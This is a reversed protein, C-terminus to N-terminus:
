GIWEGVIDGRYGNARLRHAWEELPLEGTGPAGRGPVDAIQVHELQVEDLIAEVGERGTNVALHYVDLLLGSGPVQSILRNADEVTQVPYDQMGSLPEVMAVGGFREALGEQVGRFREVQGRSLGRGGAGLLVNFRAVGTPEHLYGLAEIHGVPMDREHLIGRSGAAMDGAWANLAVLELDREELCAVLQDMEEASPEPTAFPWWLEVRGFGRQVAKDLKEGVGAVGAPVRDMGISCNLASLWGTERGVEAANM